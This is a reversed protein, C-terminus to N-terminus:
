KEIFKDKNTIVKTLYETDASNTEFWEIDSSEVQIVEYAEGNNDYTQFYLQNDEYKIIKGCYLDDPNGITHLGVIEDKSLIKIIEKMMIIFLSFHFISDDVSCYDPLKYKKM